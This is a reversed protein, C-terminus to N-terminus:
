VIICHQPTSSSSRAQLATQRGGGPQDGKLLKHGKLGHQASWIGEEHDGELEKVFSAVAHGGETLAKKHTM